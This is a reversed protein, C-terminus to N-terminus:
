RFKLKATIRCIKLLIKLRIVKPVVKIENLILYSTSIFNIESIFSMFSKKVYTAHLDRWGTGVTSLIKLIEWTPHGKGLIDDWMPGASHDVFTFDALDGNKSVIKVNAYISEVTNGEVIKYMNFRSNFVLEAVSSLTQIEASFFKPKLIGKNVQRIVRDDFGELDSKLYILDLNKSLMLDCINRLTISKIEICDFLDREEPDDLQSLVSNTKHVYFYTNEGFGEEVIGANVVVLKGSTIEHSFQEHLQSCLIPNAEVAIVLDCKQLYYPINQGINAGLDVITQIMM